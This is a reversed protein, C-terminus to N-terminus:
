RIKIRIEELEIGFKELAAEYSAQLAAFKSTDINFHGGLFFGYRMMLSIARLLTHLRPFQISNPDRECQGPGTIRLVDTIGLGKAHGVISPISYMSFYEKTPNDPMLEAVITEVGPQQKRHKLNALPSKKKWDEYQKEIDKVFDPDFVEKARKVEDHADWPLIDLLDAAEDGHLLLWQNRIMYEFLQRNLNVQARPMAMVALHISAVYNEGFLSGMYMTWRTKAVNERGSAPTMGIAQLQEEFADYFMSGISFFKVIQPDTEEIQAFSVKSEKKTQDITPIM